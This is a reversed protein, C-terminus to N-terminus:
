FIDEEHEEWDSDDDDDDVFMQNAFPDNSSPFGPFGEPKKGRLKSDSVSVMENSGGLYLISTSEDVVDNDIKYSDAYYVGDPIDLPHSVEVAEETMLQTLDLGNSYYAEKALEATRDGINGVYLSGMGICSSSILILNADEPTNVMTHIRILKSGERILTEKLWCISNAPFIGRNTKIKM